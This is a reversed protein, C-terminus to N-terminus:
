RKFGFVLTLGGVVKVSVVLAFWVWVYGNYYFLKM